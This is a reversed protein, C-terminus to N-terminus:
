SERSEGDAWSDHLCELDELVFDKPTEEFQTTARWDGAEVEQTTFQWYFCFQMKIEQAEEVVDPRIRLGTDM